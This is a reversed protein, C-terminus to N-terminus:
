SSSEVLSLSTLVMSFVLLQLAKISLLCKVIISFGIRYYLSLSTWHNKPRNQQANFLSLIDIEFDEISALQSASDLTYDRAVKIDLLRTLIFSNISTKLM